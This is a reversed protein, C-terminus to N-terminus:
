VHARGIEKLAEIDGKALLDEFDKPLTKRKAKAM